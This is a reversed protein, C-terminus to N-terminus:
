NALNQLIKVVRGHICSPTGCGVVEGGRIAGGRNQDEYTNSAIRKRLLLDTLM